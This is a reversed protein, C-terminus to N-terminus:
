SQGEGVTEYFFNSFINYYRHSRQLNQLTNKMLKRFCLLSPFIFSFVRSQPELLLLFYNCSVTNVRTNSNHLVDKQNKVIKGCWSFVSNLGLNNRIQLCQFTQNYFKLFYKQDELEVHVSFQKVKCSVM